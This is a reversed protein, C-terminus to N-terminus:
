GFYEALGEFRKRKTRDIKDYIGLLKQYSSTVTQM